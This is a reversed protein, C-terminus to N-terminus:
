EGMQAACATLKGKMRRSIVRQDALQGFYNTACSVFEDHNAATDRCQLLPGVLVDGNARSARIGTDCKGVMFNGMDWGIDHFQAPTMDVNTASRLDANIAPEMLANPTASTDFHSGSSGAAYV